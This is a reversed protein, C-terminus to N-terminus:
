VSIERISKEDIRLKNLLWHKRYFLNGLVYKFLHKYIYCGFPENLRGNMYYAKAKCGGGCFHKFACRECTNSLKINKFLDCVSSNNIIDSSIRNFGCILFMKDFVFEECAYVNGDPGLAFLNNCAGCPNSLCRHKKGSCINQLIKKMNAVIVDDQKEFVYIVFDIWKKWYRFTSLSKGRGRNFFIGFKVSKPSLQLLWQVYEEFSIKELFENTITTIISFDIKNEKLLHIRDIVDDYTGTGDPYIRHIDHVRKPGDLSIGLSIDKRSCVYNIFDKTILSGNTQVSYFPTLGFLDLEDIVKKILEWKLLPEGGHFEIHLSWKKEKVIENFKLITTVIEDKTLTKESCETNYCYNCRFNCTSTIHVVLLLSKLERKKIEPAKELIDATIKEDSLVWQEKEKHAYLNLDPFYPALTEKLM